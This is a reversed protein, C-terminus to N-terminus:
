IFIETRGLVFFRIQYTDGRERAIDAARVLNGTTVSFPSSGYYQPTDMCGHDGFFGKLIGIRHYCSLYFFDPTRYQAIKFLIVESTDVSARYYVKGMEINKWPSVEQMGVVEPVGNLSGPTAGKVAAKARHGSVEASGVALPGGVRDKM